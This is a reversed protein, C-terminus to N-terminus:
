RDRGSGPFAEFTLRVASFVVSAHLFPWLVQVQSLSQLTEFCRPTDFYVLLRSTGALAM